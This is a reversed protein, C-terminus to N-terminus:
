ADVSKPTTLSAPALAALPQVIAAGPFRPYAWVRPPRYATPRPSRRRPRLGRQGSRSRLDTPRDPSPNWLPCRHSAVRSQLPCPLHDKHPALSEARQPTRRLEGAQADSGAATPFRAYGFSSVSVLLLALCLAYAHTKM